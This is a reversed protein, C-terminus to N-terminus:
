AAKRTDRLPRLLGKGGSTMGALATARARAVRARYSMVSVVELALALGILLPLPFDQGRVGLRPELAFPAASGLAATFLAATVMLMALPRFLRRFAMLGFGPLVYAVVNRVLERRREIGRRQQHLLVRVFEHSEARSAIAGCAECLPQDNKRASCKRCITRGCNSCSRLPMTRHMRLSLGLSLGILLVLLGSYRWGSCEVRNRWLPPFASPGAAIRFPAQGLAGWFTHPALWQDALALWRREVGQAQYGKVMEFDLQLAIAVEKGATEFDFRQTYVQSLNFHPAANRPNAAIADNYSAIAEDGRGQLALVNGLDNLVRDDNPWAQLAARYHVEAARPDGARRAMWGAAFQLFPSEPHEAARKEIDVYRARSYPEAQLQVMGYFPARTPDLPSAMHDLWAGALPLLALLTTFAVFLGRDRVRATPWLFALFIATPLAPGLGAVYPALLFAWSWMTATKSSIFPTLREKWTHRLRDHTLAILGIGGFLLALLVVQLTLYLSDLVLTLQLAFNERALQVMAGVHQIAQGPERLLLWSILTLHPAAYGPDLEAAGRVLKLADAEQHQTWLVLGRRYFLRAEEPLAIIHSRHQYQRWDDIDALSTPAASPGQQAGIREPPESPVAPAAPTASAEEGPTTAADDDPAAVSDPPVEGYQPDAAIARADPAPDAFATQVATFILILLAVGTCLRTVVRRVRSAPVMPHIGSPVPTFTGIVSRGHALEM